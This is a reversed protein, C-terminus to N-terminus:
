SKEEAETNANARREPWDRVFKPDYEVLLGLCRTEVNPMQHDTLINTLIKKIGEPDKFKDFYEAFKIIADEDYSPVELDPISERIMSVSDAKNLEVSVGALTFVTTTLLLTKYTSDETLLRNLFEKLGQYSTQTHIQGLLKILRYGWTNIEYHDYELDDADIISHILELLSAVLLPSKRYALVDAARFRLQLYRTEDGLVQLLAEEPILATQKRYHPEEDPHFHIFNELVSVAHGTHLVKLQDKIKDLQNVSEKFGNLHKEVRDAILTKVSFWLAVGIITLIVVIILGFLSTWAFLWKDNYDRLEREFRGFEANIFKANADARKAEADALKAALEMKEVNEVIQLQSQLTLVQEKLVEMEQVLKQYSPDQQAFSVLVSMVLSALFLLSVIFIKM